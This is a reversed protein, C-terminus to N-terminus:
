VEDEINRQSNLPTDGPMLPDGPWNELDARGFVGNFHSDAFLVFSRSTTKATVMTMTAMSMMTKM